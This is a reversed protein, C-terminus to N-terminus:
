SLGDSVERNESEIERGSARAEKTLLAAFDQDGYGLGIGEVIISHVLAATPVPVNLATATSLGLEFDKRLLHWTFTPSYDLNVFAPTKYKTFTSGVVSDNLFEFLDARSVGAAEALVSIEAMSQAVIGLMLNHCIKVLRAEDEGGVYTVKRGFAALYPGAKAFATEPGSAVVTLRGAKVVKPNGSVPAALVETGIEAARVRLTRSTAPDITTSDVIVSPRADPRSLVGEDGITVELVDEPGGVMTFVVDLDALDAPRDVVKAGHEVLAEAKARTRNFVWVETGADLLRRVLASGMRGTGIWGVQEGSTM